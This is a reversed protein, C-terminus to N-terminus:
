SSLIQRRDQTSNLNKSGGIRAVWYTKPKCGCRKATLPTVSRSPRAVTRHLERRAFMPSFDIYTKRNSLFMNSSMGLISTKQEMSACSSHASELMSIRVTLELKLGKSVQHAGTSAEM